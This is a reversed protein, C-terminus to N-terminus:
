CSVAAFRFRSEACNQATSRNRRRTDMQCSAFVSAIRAPAGSLVAHADPRSGSAQRQAAAVPMRDVCAFARGLALPGAERAAVAAASLTAAGATPATLGASRAPARRAFAGMNPPDPLALCAGVDDGPLTHMTPQLMLQRLLFPLHSADCIGNDAFNRTICLLDDALASGHASEMPDSRM